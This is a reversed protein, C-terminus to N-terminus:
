GVPEKDQLEKSKELPQVIDNNQIYIPINKCFTLLQEKTACNKMTNALSSIIAINDPTYGKTNDIRDITPSNLYNGKTGVFLPINLIPCCSPIVLDEEKLSFKINRRKARDQTRKWMVHIFNKRSSERKQKKVKEHKIPDLSIKLKQNKDWVKIKDKNEKRYSINRQASVKNACSKCRAVHYTNGNKHKFSYFENIPKVLLCKTCKKNEM